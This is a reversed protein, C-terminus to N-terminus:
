CYLSLNQAPNEERAATKDIASGDAIDGAATTSAHAPDYRVSM